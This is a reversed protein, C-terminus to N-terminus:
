GWLAADSPYVLSGEYRLGPDRDTDLLLPGDLDTFAARQAVLVAPAMALSSGIMCGVMITMGAAEAADALVLAETLGGTKDLKINVADYKGVLASLDASTHASEDACIPLPHPVEALKGDANAPLPQEILSVGMEACAAMNAVLNDDNWGENADIILRSNPANERVARIRADDGEGGLKVKLLERHSAKRAAEGMSQPAGLSLTYATVRPEPAPLGALEFARKGTAKAELDWMACDVANRAAGAPLAGALDARPLGDAVLGAISEIQAIVSEVTEDYRAYPVCEGWGTHTGDSITATVVKADTRTGRSITFGGSIPFIDTATLLTRTM